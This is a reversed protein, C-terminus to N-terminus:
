PQMPSCRPIISLSASKGMLMLETLVKVGLFSNMTAGRGDVGGALGSVAQQYSESGGTRLVDRLRQFIANRIELLAARVFNPIPTINRRINFDNADERGSFQELYRQRYLVGGNYTLRYLYWSLDLGAWDPYRTDTLKIPTAAEYM